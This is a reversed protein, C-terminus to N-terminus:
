PHTVQLLTTTTTYTTGKVIWIPKPPANAAAMSNRNTITAQQEQEEEEHRQRVLEHQAWVIASDLLPLLTQPYGILLFGLVPEAQMLDFADVAVSYDRTTASSEQLLRVLDSRFNSSNNNSNNSCPSWGLCLSRWFSALM